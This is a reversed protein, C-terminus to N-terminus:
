GVRVVVLCSETTLRRNKEHRRMEKDERGRERRGKGQADPDQECRVVKRAAQVQGRGGVRTAKDVADKQMVWRAASSNAEGMCANSVIQAEKRCTEQACERVV